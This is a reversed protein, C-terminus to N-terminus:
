FPLQDASEVSMQSFGMDAYKRMRTEDNKLLRGPRGNHKDWDHRFEVLYTKEGDRTKRRWPISWGPVDRWSCNSLVMVGHDSGSVFAGRSLIAKRITGSEVDGVIEKARKVSLDPGAEAVGPMLASVRRALEARETCFICGVESPVRRVIDAVLSAFADNMTASRELVDLPASGLSGAPRPCPVWVVTIPVGIGARVADAYSASACLPGFLGEADLGVDPSGGYSTSWIGWRAANRLSSVKEAVSKMSVDQLDTGIFLGGYVYQFDLDAGYPVVVVDESDTGYASLSDVEREPLMARLERALRKQWGGPAAVFVLPTGREVLSERPFARIISAALRAKGFIDPVSVIGGGAGIADVVLDSWVCSVGRTAADLDPAPMNPREDYVVSGDDGECLRRVRRAFGPMTVITKGDGSEPKVFLDEYFGERGVIRFMRLGDMLSETAGEVVISGRGLHVTM